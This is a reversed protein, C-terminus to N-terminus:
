LRRCQAGLTLRIFHVCSMAMGDADCFGVLSLVFGVPMSLYWKNRTLVRVTRYIIPVASYFLAWGHGWFYSSPSYSITYFLLSVRQHGARTRGSSQAAFHASGRFVNDVCAKTLVVRPIAGLSASVLRTV